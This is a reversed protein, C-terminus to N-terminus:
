PSNQQLLHLPSVREHFDRGDRERSCTCPARLGQPHQCSVVVLRSRSPPAAQLLPEAVPSRRRPWSNMLPARAAPGPQPRRPFRSPAALGALRVPWPEGSLRRRRSGGSNDCVGPCLFPRAREIDPEPPRYADIHCPCPTAAAHGRRHARRPRPSAADATSAAAVAVAM